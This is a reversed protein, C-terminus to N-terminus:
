CWLAEKSLGVTVVVGISLLACLPGWWWCPGYCFHWRGQLASNRRGHFGLMSFVCWIGTLAFLAIRAGSLFLERCYKETPLFVLVLLLPQLTAFMLLTWQVCAIHVERRQEKTVRGKRRLPPKAATNWQQQRPPQPQPRTPPEVIEFRERPGPHALKSAPMTSDNM